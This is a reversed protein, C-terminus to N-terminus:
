LPQQIPYNANVMVIQRALGEKVDVVLPARLNVTIDASGDDNPRVTVILLFAADDWSISASM